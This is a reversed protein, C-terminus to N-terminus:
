QIKESNLENNPITLIREEMIQGSDMYSKLIEEIVKKTAGTQIMINQVVSYYDRPEKKVATLIYNKIFECVKQRNSKYM